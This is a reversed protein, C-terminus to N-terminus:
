RRRPIGTRAGAYARYASVSPEGDLWFRWPYGAAPGGVGVRPGRRVRGKDVPAVPSALYLDADARYAPRGDHRLDTVGLARALNAPGRALDRARRDAGRRDRALGAGEEVTGARLLVSAPRAGPGCVANLCRHVAHTRYVYFTGPAGFEAGNTANPGRYAHSAPDDPGDYAEVETIQVAVRGTGSRAIVFAGLLEPAVELAPRDFFAAPLARTARFPQAAGAWLEQQVPLEGETSKM